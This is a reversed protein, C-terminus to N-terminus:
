HWYYRIEGGARFGSGGKLFFGLGFRGEFGFWGLVLGGNWGM